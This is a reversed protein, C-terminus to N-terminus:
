KSLSSLWAPLIAAVVQTLILSTLPGLGPFVIHSGLFLLFVYFSNTYFLSFWVHEARGGTVKQASRRRQVWRAVLSYSITLGVVGVAYAVVVYPLDTKLDVGGVFLYLCVGIGAFLLGLPLFRIYAAFGTVRKKSGQALEQYEAEEDAPAAGEGSSGRRRM